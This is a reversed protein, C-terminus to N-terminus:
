TKEWAKAIEAEPIAQFAWQDPVGERDVTKLYKETKLPELSPWNLDSDPVLEPRFQVLSAPILKGSVPHKCHGADLIATVEHHGSACPGQFSISLFLNHTVMHKSISVTNPPHSSAGPDTPSSTSAATSSSATPM